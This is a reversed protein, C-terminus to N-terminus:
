CGPGRLHRRRKQTQLFGAVPCGLRRVSVTSALLWVSARAASRDHCFSNSPVPSEVPEIAVTRARTWFHSRWRLARPRARRFEVVGSSRGLCGDKGLEAVDWDSLQRGPVEVPPVPLRGSLSPVTGKIRRADAAVM